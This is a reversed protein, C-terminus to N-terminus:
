SERGIEPLLLSPPAVFFLALDFSKSFFAMPPLDTFLFSPPPGLVNFPQIIKTSAPPSM